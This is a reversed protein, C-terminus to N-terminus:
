ARLRGLGYHVAFAILIPAVIQRFRFATGLNHYSAFGYVAAWALLTLVAWVLVPDHLVPAAGNRLVGRVLLALVAANELGALLGFPNLIEGPLPRFLATFMGVPLFAIMEGFSGFGQVLRQASGGTAFGEAILNTQLVLDEATAIRFQESFAEAALLFAPLAALGAAIKVTVPVRGTVLLAALLPALFIAGLWVRVSAAILLGALALGVAPVSRDRLVGVAGLAFLGIGLSTVPEKGLISTWFLISPMLGLLLLLGEHEAGTARVAARYFLYVAALGIASFIVKLASYSTTLGSLVGTLAAMNGTGEGFAFAGLPDQLALGARYYFTADLTVYHSEYLLMLGLTVGTRALWLLSLLGRHPRPVPLIQILGLILIAALIGSLFDAEMDSIRFVIAAHRGAVAYCLAVVAPVAVIM